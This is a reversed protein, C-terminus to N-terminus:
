FGANEDSDENEMEDVESDDDIIDSTTNNFLSQLEPYSTEMENYNDNMKGVYDRIVTYKCTRVKQCSADHPVCVVDAPNVEVIVIKKGGYARAYNENAVHLGGSCGVTLDDSVYMREMEVTEGIGNYIQGQGNRKGSILPESGSHYSYYDETVYKYALFNGNATIPMNRYELFKYLNNITNKSQSAYVKNTFELLHNIPLKLMMYEKIRNLIYNDVVNNRYLLQNNKLTINGCTIDAINDAIFISELLKIDDTRIATLVTDFEKSTKFVTRPTNNYLVTISKDTLTYAIM